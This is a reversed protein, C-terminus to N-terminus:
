QRSHFGDMQGLLEASSLHKTGTETKEELDELQIKLITYQAQLKKMKREINKMDKKINEIKTMM